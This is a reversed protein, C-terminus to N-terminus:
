AASNALRVRVHQVEVFGSSKLYSSQAIRAKAPETSAMPIRVYEVEARGGEFRLQLFEVYSTSVSQKPPPKKVSTGVVLPVLPLVNQGPRHTFTSLSSPVSLNSKEEANPTRDALFFEDLSMRPYLEDAIEATNGAHTALTNVPSSFSELIEARSLQYRRQGFSSTTQPTAVMKKQESAKSNKKRLAAARSVARKNEFVAEDRLSALPMHFKLGKTNNMAINWDRPNYKYVTEDNPM